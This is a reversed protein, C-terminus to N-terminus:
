ADPMLMVGRAIFDALAFIAYDALCPLLIRRALLIYVSDAQAYAYRCPMRAAGRM